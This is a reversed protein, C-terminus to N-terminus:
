SGGWGWAKGVRREESRLADDLEAARGVQVGLAEGLPAVRLVVLLRRGEVHDALVQDGLADRDLGIGLDSAPEPVVIGGRAHQDLVDQLHLLLVGVVQAREEGRERRALAPGPALGRLGSARASRRTS